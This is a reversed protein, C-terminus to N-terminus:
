ESMVESMNNNIIAADEDKSLSIDKLLIGYPHEPTRTVKSLVLDAKLTKRVPVSNLQDIPRTLLDGLVNVYIQKGAIEYDLKKIVVENRVGAAQITKIAQTEKMYKLHKKAYDETMMNLSKQFQAVILDSRLGVYNDLFIKSFSQIDHETTLETEYSYNALVDTNGLKDIRIVLPPKQAVVILVILMVVCLAVLGTIFYHLNKRQTNITNLLEYPSEKNETHYINNEKM